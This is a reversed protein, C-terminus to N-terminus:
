TVVNHLRLPRISFQLVAAEPKVDRWDGACRSTVSRLGEVNVHPHFKAHTTTLDLVHRLSRCVSRLAAIDDLTWDWRGVDQQLHQAICSLVDKPLETLSIHSAHPM